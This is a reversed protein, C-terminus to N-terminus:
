IRLTWDRQPVEPNNNKTFYSIKDLDGITVPRGFITGLNFQIESYHTNVGDINSVVSSSGFGPAGTAGDGNVKSGDYGYGSVAGVGGPATGLDAPSIDRGFEAASAISVSAMVVGLIAGKCVFLKM